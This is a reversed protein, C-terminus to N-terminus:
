RSAVWILLVLFCLPLGFLLVALRTTLRQQYRHLREAVFEDKTRPPTGPMELFLRLYEDEFRGRAIASLRVHVILFTAALAAVAVILGVLWNLM